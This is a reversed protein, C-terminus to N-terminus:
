VRSSGGADLLRRVDALAPVGHMAGPRTCSAAAAANAFRLIAPLPWGALLGYIFGGRFVDGAGTTDVADVQVGADHVIRDGELAIAGREGLTVCALGPHGTRLLRLAREPDRIGTLQEPVHEAFIPITVAEILAEVGDTVRDIDSTVPLGAERGLQAARVAAGIDVDDVHVLRAARVAEPPIEDPTLRLREDRGWLVMREGSTDDVLVIAYHNPADRAAAHRLDIGRRALEERMLGGHADSGMAGVYATRLGFSACTALTTTTQGGMSITKERVRLKSSGHARLPGPLRLVTDASNTGVGIVDFLPPPSVVAATYRPSPALRQASAL